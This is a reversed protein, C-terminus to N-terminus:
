RTRAKSRLAQRNEELIRAAERPNFPEVPTEGILDDRARMTKNVNAAAAEETPSADFDMAKLKQRYTDARGAIDDWTKAPNADDHGMADIPGSGRTESASMANTLELRMWDEDTGKGAEANEKIREMVKGIRAFDKKYADFNQQNTAADKPKKFEERRSGKVDSEPLDGGLLGTGELAERAFAEEEAKEKAIRERREVEKRERERQASVTDVEAAYTSGSPLVVVDEARIQGERGRAHKELSTSMEDALGRHDALAANFKFFWVGIRYEAEFEERLKPFRMVPEFSEGVRWGWRLAGQVHMLGREPLLCVGREGGAENDFSIVGPALLHIAFFAAGFPPAEVHMEYGPMHHELVRVTDPVDGLVERGVTKAIDLLTKSWVLGPTRRTERRQDDRVEKYDDFGHLDLSVNRVAAKERSSGSGPAYATQGAKAILPQLEEWLLQEQQASIVNRYVACDKTAAPPLDILRTDNRLSLLRSSATLSGPAAVVAFRRM